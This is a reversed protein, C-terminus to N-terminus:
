VHAKSQKLAPAPADLFVECDLCAERLYGNPLRHIQWCPKGSAAVRTKVEEIPLGQEMWCPEEDRILLSREEEAQRQWRLDLRRLGYVLLATVLLPLVLRVFLGLLLAFISNTDM